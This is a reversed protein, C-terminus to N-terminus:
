FADPQTNPQTNRFADLEMCRGFIGKIIPYDDVSCDFRAANFVQPVLCIDAMTVSDGFCFAGHLKTDALYDELGRFGETVWHAYWAKTATEDAGFQAKLHKLVRVNNLPHMECGIIQSVARVYARSRIDKPILSPEPYSEDLYEITAMSQIYSDADDVLLPLLQQPNLACYEPARHEMKPLSVYHPEYALGKYALAIRLRFSTSSRFFTYLRRQM